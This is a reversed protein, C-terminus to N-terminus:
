PWAKPRRTLFKTLWLPSPLVKPRYSHPLSLGFRRQRARQRM